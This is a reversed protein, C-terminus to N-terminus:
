FCRHWRKLLVYVAAPLAANVVEGVVVVIVATNKFTETEEWRNGRGAGASAEYSLRYLM